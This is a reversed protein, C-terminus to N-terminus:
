SGDDISAIRAKLREMMEDTSLDDLQDPVDDPEEVDIVPASVPASGDAPPLELVDDAFYSIMANLTPYNFILTTPLVSGLAIQLRNRLEVATLSDVGLEFFGTELPLPDNEDLGLVRAVESTVFEFLIERKKEPEAEELRELLESRQNSVHGVEDLFERFFPADALNGLLRSWDIPVAGVQGRSSLVEGFLEMGQRTPILGIGAAAWRARDRRSLEAAMGVESWPGWNISLGSHGERQMQHALGDLFANAMAYNGQGASGLLSSISSFSVFFDLEDGRVHEYLNWAGAVKPALVGAFQDWDQELLMGDALVGAAHVIGKLPPMAARVACMMDAVQEAESVDTKSVLVNVGSQTLDAVTEKAQPTAAGRRGTLVLHKAGQEALWSAIQLGLAGLGGTVLYAADSRVNVVEQEVDPEKAHLSIMVKGIHKAQAVYRFADVAEGASFSTFPQTDLEGREFRGLVDRMLRGMSGPSQMEEDLMDFREYSIDNRFEAVQKPDWIGIAGIEIFRGGPKLVELSKSIYDGNLSNLVVDIGEGNTLEMIEDAFDLTRSNMVHDVGQGKLFEWKRQSATGFVEAGIRQALQVAAQGVGGAASHILIRDGKKLNAGQELARVATMMIFSSAVAEDYSLTSPKPAIYQVPVTAHTAMSGMVLGVVEDGEKFEDVQPGVSVVRGGCELGFIADDASVIGLTREYDQLMGLARLVDRFNLGSTEVEIEVEGVLPERRSIPRYELNDLVGFSSLHMRFPEDVPIELLGGHARSNRVLRAVYRKKQRYALQDEDPQKTLMESILRSASEGAGEEPDLDIRTCGLEPHESALVRGLGWLSAGSLTLPRSSTEVPQAGRTVIHWRPFKSENRAAWAKLTQLVGECSLRLESTMQDLSTDSAVTSDLSWCHVVGRCPLAADGFAAEVLQDFDVRQGPDVRYRNPSVEEFGDGPTALM